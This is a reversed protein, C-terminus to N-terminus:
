KRVYIYNEGVLGIYIVLQLKVSLLFPFFGIVQVYNSDFKHTCYRKESVMNGM